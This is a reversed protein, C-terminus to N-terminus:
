PINEYAGMDYVAGSGLFDLPRATGILDLAIGSASGSDISVSTARLRYDVPAAVYLPDASLSGPGPTVQFYDATGNSWVNSYDSVVSGTTNERYIGYAGNGTVINNRLSHAAAAATSVIRIGDIANRDITNNHIVNSNAASASYIGYDNAFLLSSSVFLDGPNMVRLGYTNNVLVSKFVTVAAQARIGETNHQLVTNDIAFVQQALFGYQANKLYVYDVNIEFVTPDIVIGYWNGGANSVDVSRVVIPMAATGEIDLSGIVTIEVRAADLGAGMM